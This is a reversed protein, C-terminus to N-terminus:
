FARKSRRRAGQRWFGGGGHRRKNQGLFVDVDGYLMPQNVLFSLNTVDSELESLSASANDMTLVFLLALALTFVSVCRM